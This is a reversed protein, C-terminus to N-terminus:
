LHPFQAEFINLTKALAVRSILVLFLTRVWAQCSGLRLGPITVEILILGQSHSAFSIILIFTDHLGHFNQSLDWVQSFDKVGRKREGMVDLGEACGTSETEFYVGLGM